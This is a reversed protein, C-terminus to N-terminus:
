GDAMVEPQEPKAKGFDPPTCIKPGLKYFKENKVMKSNRCIRLKKDTEFTIEQQRIAKRASKFHRGCPVNSFNLKPNESFHKEYNETNCPAFSDDSSALLIAAKINSEDLNASILKKRKEFELDKKYRSTRKILLRCSM